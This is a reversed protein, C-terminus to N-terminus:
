CPPCLELDVVVLFFIKGGILKKANLKRGHAVLFGEKEFGMDLVELGVVFVAVKLDADFEEAEFGGFAALTEVAKQVDDVLVFAHVGGM